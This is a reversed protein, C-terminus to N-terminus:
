FYALDCTIYVSLNNNESVFQDTGLM